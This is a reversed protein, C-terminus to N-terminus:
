IEWKGLRMEWPAWYGLLHRVIIEDLEPQTVVGSDAERIESM